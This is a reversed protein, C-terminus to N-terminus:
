EVEFGIPLSSFVNLDIIINKVCLCVMVGSLLWQMKHTHTQREFIFFLFDIIANSM